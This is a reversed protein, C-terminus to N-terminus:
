QKIQKKERRWRQYNSFLLFIFKEINRNRILDIVSRFMIAPSLLFNFLAEVIMILNTKTLVGLYNKLFVMNRLKKHYRMLTETSMASLNVLPTTELLMDYDRLFYDKSLKEEKIAVEAAETGPFPTFLNFYTYDPKTKRLFKVNEILDEEKEGPLGIMFSALSKIRYKRTLDLAKKIQEPTQGKKISKLIRRSASEIGFDIQICGAHSMIGLLEESILNVRTQCGWKLGLPKLANCLDTIWESQITFTEDHFYVGDINYYSKLLEIEKIVNGISRKRVKKHFISSSNCFTCRAPCGRSTLVSLVRKMFHSRIYGPPILYRSVPLLERAPFPLSDLDNIIDLEENIYFKGGEKFAISKVGHFSQNNEIANCVKIIVTEGEGIVVFDLGMEEITEKPRVTPHIGGACFKANHFREKLLLALSKTMKFNTTMVSFGILDPSFTNTIEDAIENINDDPYIDFLKVEYNNSMLVAGLYTIGFPISMIDSTRMNILVIKMKM